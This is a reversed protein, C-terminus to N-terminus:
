GLLNRYTDRSVPGHVISGEGGVVDIAVGSLTFAVQGVGPLATLTYTIQAVALTQDRAPTETFAQTLDVTAIGGAVTVSALSRGPALASRYGATIEAPLLPQALLAVLDRPVVPAPVDRDVSGLRDNRVLYLAVRQTPRTTATAAPAPLSTTPAADLLAFPVANREIRHASSQQPIACATFMVSAALASLACFWPTRGLPRRSM